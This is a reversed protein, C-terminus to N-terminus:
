LGVIAEEHTDMQYINTMHGKKHRSNSQTTGEEGAGETDMETDNKDTRAHKKAM